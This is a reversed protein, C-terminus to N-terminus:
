SSAPITFLKRSAIHEITLSARDRGTAATYNFTFGDVIDSLDALSNVDSRLDDIVDILTPERDTKSPIVGVAGAYNSDSSKERRSVAM